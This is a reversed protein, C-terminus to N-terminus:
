FAEKSISGGNLKILHTIAKKMREPLNESGFTSRLFIEVQSWKKGDFIFTNNNFEGNFVCNDLNCKLLLTYGGWDNTTIDIKKIQNLPIKWCFNVKNIPHLVLMNGKDFIIEYEHFNYKGDRYNYAEIKDKIWEETEQKSQASLKDTCFFFIAFTIFILKM